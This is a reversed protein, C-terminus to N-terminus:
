QWTLGGDLSRVLQEGVWLWVVNEAESVAINGVLAAPDAAVPFCVSGSASVDDSFSILQVGACDSAGVLAVRYGGEAGTIQMAGPIGVTSPWTAGSDITTWVSQDSCLVAARDTDRVAIAIVDTCPAAFDGAPSHLAAHNTPQVFWASRLQEPYAAYDDGGVFTRALAAGCTEADQGIMTADSDNDIIIRQLAVVETAATVSTAKWSVGGDTTLEPAAQADPCAGTTARWATESDLAAVLRTPRVAVVPAAPTPTPEAGEEPTPLSTAAPRPTSELSTGPPNTSNLAAAVLILDVVVFAALAVIAM